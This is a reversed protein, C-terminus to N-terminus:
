VGTITNNKNAEIYKNNASILKNVNQKIRSFHSIYAKERATQVKKDEAWLQEESMSAHYEVLATNVMGLTKDIDVVIDALIRNQEELLKPLTMSGTVSM